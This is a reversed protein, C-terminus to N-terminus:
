GTGPSSRAGGTGSAMPTSAAISRRDTSPTSPGTSGSPRVRSLGHTLDARTGSGSDIHLTHARLEDASPQRGLFTVHAARVFDATPGDADYIVNLTPRCARMGSLPSPPGGAVTQVGAVDSTGLRSAVAAWSESGSTTVCVSRDVDRNAGPAGTLTSAIQRSVLEVLRQGAEHDPNQDTMITVAYGQDTGDQRVFGTSGIRWRAAGSLPYFGNKLAVTWGAPVGATIGWQQTPHVATMAAWAEAAGRLASPVAVTSCRRQSGPATRPPARRRAGGASARPPPAARLAPRADGSGDVGGLSVFLDSAPPNHSYSIMPRIRDREWVTTSRGLDQARLLVGALFQAKIVSATTIQMGRELHSWCGTRTDHVAATVRRGPFQSAIAERLAPTFPDPRAAAVPPAATAWGIATIVAVVALSACARRFRPTRSTAMAPDYGDNDSATSLNSQTVIQGGWGAGGGGLDLGLQRRVHPCQGPGIGHGAGLLDGRDVATTASPRRVSSTARM